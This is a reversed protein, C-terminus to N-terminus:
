LSYYHLSYRLFYWMSNWLLLESILCYKVTPQAPCSYFCVANSNVKPTGTRDATASRSFRPPASYTAIILAWAWVLAGWWVTYRMQMAHSSCPSVQWPQFLGEPSACYFIQQKIIHANSALNFFFYRSWKLCFVKTQIKLFTSIVLRLKMESNCLTALLSEPLCEIHWVDPKHIVASSLACTPNCTAYLESSTGWFRLDFHTLWVVTFTWAQQTWPCIWLHPWLGWTFASQDAQSDSVSECCVM